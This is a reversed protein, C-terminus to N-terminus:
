ETRDQVRKTMSQPTMSQPSKESLAGSVGKGAYEPM